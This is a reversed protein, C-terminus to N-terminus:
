DFLIWLSPVCKSASRTDGKQKLWLGQGLVQSFTQAWYTNKSSGILKSLGHVYMREVKREKKKEQGQISTGFTHHLRAGNVKEGPLSSEIQSIEM